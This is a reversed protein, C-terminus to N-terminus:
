RAINYKESNTASDAMVTCPEFQKDAFLPNVPFQLM